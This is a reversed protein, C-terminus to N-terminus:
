TEQAQIEVVGTSFIVKAGASLRSTVLVGKREPSETLETHGDGDKLVSVKIANKSFAFCSRVNGTKPIAGVGDREADPLTLITCGLYTKPQIAYNKWPPNDNGVYDASVFKDEGMLDSWQKASIVICREGGASNGALMEVAKLLKANTLGSGGHVIVNSKATTTGDDLADLIIGDFQRGLLMGQARKLSSQENTIMRAVDERQVLENVWYDDIPVSITSTDSNSLPLLGTAAGRRVIKSVGKIQVRSDKGVINTEVDVTSRLISAERQFVLKVESEYKTVFAKDLSYAM